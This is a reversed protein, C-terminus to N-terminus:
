VVEIEIFTTFINLCIRSHFFGTFEVRYFIQFFKVKMIYRIDMMRKKGEHRM